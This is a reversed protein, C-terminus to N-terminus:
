SLIEKIRSYIALGDMGCFSLQSEDEVCSLNEPTIFHVDIKESWIDYLDSNVKKRFRESDFDGVVIIREQWLVSRILLPSFKAKYDGIWFVDMWQSDEQLLNAAQLWEQFMSGYVLMTGTFGQIGFEALNLIEDYDIDTEEWWVKEEMDKNPIRLFTIKDEQFFNEVKSDINTIDMPEYINVNHIDIDDLDLMSVKYWLGTLGANLNFIFINTKGSKFLRYISDWNWKDLVVFVKKFKEALAIVKGVAEEPNELKFFQNKKNVNIDSDSVVAIEKALNTFLSNKIYIVPNQIM